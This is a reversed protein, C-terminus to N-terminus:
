PCTGWAPDAIIDPLARLDEIRPCDVNRHAGQRDVLVPRLGAARAGEVDDGYSDGVHWGVLREEAAAQAAIRFMRGESKASGAAFADILPDFYHRVGLADLDPAARPRGTGIGLRAGKASLVRLTEPVDPYLRISDPRKLLEAVREATRRVGNRVGLIGLIRGDYDLWFEREDGLASHKKVCDDYLTEFAHTLVEWARDPSVEVGAERAAQAFAERWSATWEILTDDVDFFIFHGFSVPDEKPLFVGRRFAAQACGGRGPVLRLIGPAM